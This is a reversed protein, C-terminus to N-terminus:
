PAMVTIEVAGAALAPFRAPRVEGTEWHAPSSALVQEAQTDPPLKPGTTSPAPPAPLRLLRPISCAAVGAVAKVAMLVAAATVSAGFAQRAPAFRHELATAVAQSVAAWEYAPDRLVEVRVGFWLIDARMARFSAAPPRAAAIAVGLDTLLGDGVPRGSHGVLSLVVTRRSGDWVTDARAAGVGAFGQAFDEYDTVSVVRDLTRTQRPASNRADPLDESSSWDHASMPNVVTSIGLPRRPLLTLQGASVAGDAGNGVRYAAAVNESGTPLRAGHVGDGFLATATGGEANRVVFVRDNPGAEYLTSVEHWLEGDVRIALTSTAGGSVAARVYTLPQRWVPLATFRRAGDGSGLVHSVSEGHTASVVNGLVAVTDPRYAQELERDLTVTMVTGATNVTCAAVRALEGRATGSHVDTGQVLVVRGVPLPPETVALELLRGAVPASRPKQGAPLEVSQCHVLTSRPALPGVLTGDTRVKTTRASFGSLSNGSPAISLVRHLQRKDDSELVLWSDPLLRQHDGDLELPLPAPPLKPPPGAPANWGFLNAREAFGYAHTSKSFIPGHQRLDTGGSRRVTLLTWGARGEPEMTVGTVVLFGWGMEAGPEAGFVLLPDGPRIGPTIGTLWISSTGTNLRQPDTAIAPIANWAARAELDTDTEFIQPTQEQGPISQVPTGRPVTVADPAAADEVSFALEAQAAIGPRLEYGLTRVLERVSELETATGLFGEQKLRETYFSVIDTIIAWGDLLAIAPEDVPRRALARVGAPHESAALAARMRALSLGYTMARARPSRQKAPDVPTPRAGDEPDAPGTM